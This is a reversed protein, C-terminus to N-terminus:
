DRWLPWPEPSSRPGKWGAREVLESKLLFDRGSARLHAEVDPLRRKYQEDLIHRAEAGTYNHAGVFYRDVYDRTADIIREPAMDWPNSDWADTEYKWPEISVTTRLGMDHAASLLRKRNLISSGGPEWLRCMEEDLTVITAGIDVRDRYPTVGPLVDLANAACKTLLFVRLEEHGLMIHLCQEMLELASREGTEFDLFPDTTNCCFVVPQEGRRRARRALSGADARIMDLIDGVPAVLRPKLFEDKLSWGPGHSERPGYQHRSLAPSYKDYVCGVSCGLYIQMSHTAFQPWGHEAKAAHIVHRRPM